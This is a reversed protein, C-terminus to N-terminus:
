LEMITASDTITYWIKIHVTNNDGGQIDNGNIIIPQNDRGVYGDWCNLARVGGAFGTLEVECIYSGGAPTFYGYFAFKGTPMVGNNDCTVIVRHPVLCQGEGPSQILEVTTNNRIQSLNITGNYELWQIGSNVPESPQGWNYLEGTESIGLVCNGNSSDALSPILVSGTTALELTAGDGDTRATVTSSMGTGNDDFGLKATRIGRNSSSVSLGQQRQVTINVEDAGYSGDSSLQTIIASAVWQNGFGDYYLMQGPQGEPLSGGTGAEMGDVARLASNLNPETLNALNGTYEGAPVSIDTDRIM